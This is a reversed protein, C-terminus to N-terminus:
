NAVKVTAYRIVKDGLKYGKLFVESVTNEDLAENEEHMVGNHLQPDFADGPAGFSELGLAALADALQKVTLEIGKKYSEFDGESVAARELNDVVPLISKIADAKGDGYLADKEKLSRKRFNDYEALTRLLRDNAAALEKALADAENTEQAAEAKEAAEAEKAPAENVAAEAQEAAAAEKNKKKESM